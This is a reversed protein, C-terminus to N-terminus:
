LLKGGGCTGCPESPPQPTVIETPIKIIVNNLGEVLIKSFAENLPTHPYKQKALMLQKIKDEYDEKSEACDLGIHNLTICISTYDFWNDFASIIDTYRKDALDMNVYGSKQAVM